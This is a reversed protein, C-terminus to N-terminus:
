SPKSSTWSNVVGAYDHAVQLSLWATFAFLGPLISATDSYLAYVTVLFGFGAIPLTLVAYRRPSTEVHLALVFGCVLMLLVGVTALLGPRLDFLSEFWDFTLSQPRAYLIMAAGVLLFGTMQELQFPRTQRFVSRLTRM